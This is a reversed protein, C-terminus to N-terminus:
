DKASRAELFVSCRIVPTEGTRIARYYVFSL